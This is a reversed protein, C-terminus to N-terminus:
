EESPDETAISLVDTMLASFEAQSLDGLRQFPHKKVADAVAHELFQM